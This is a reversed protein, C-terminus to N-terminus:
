LIKALDNELTNSDMAYLLLGFQVHNNAPNEPMTYSYFKYGGEIGSVIENVSTNHQQVYSTPFWLWAAQRYDRQEALLTQHIQFDFQIKELQLGCHADAMESVLGGPARHAIELFICKGQPTLFLEIHTVSNNRAQLHHVIEKGANALQIFIESNRDVTKSGIPKGDILDVPNNLYQGVQVVINENNHTVVNCHYLTGTIYQEAEMSALQFQLDAILRPLDDANHVIHVGRNNSENRPKIVLPLGFTEILMESLENPEIKACNALAMYSPCQVNATALQKKMLVKDVFHDALIDQKNDRNNLQDCLQLCYEDNSVFVIENQAYPLLLSSIVTVDLQEYCLVTKFASPVEPYQQRLGETTLLLTDYREDLSQIYAHMDIRVVQKYQIFVITTKM